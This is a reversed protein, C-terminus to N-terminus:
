TRNTGAGESEIQETRLDESVQQAMVMEKTQPVRLADPELSAGASIRARRAGEDSRM